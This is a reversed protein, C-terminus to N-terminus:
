HKSKEVLRSLLGKKKTISSPKQVVVPPALMNSGPVEVAGNYPQPLVAYPYPNPSPLPPTLPYNSYTSLPRSSSLQPSLTQPSLSQPSLQGAPSIPQAPYANANWHPQQALPLPSPPAPSAYPPQPYTQLQAIESHWQAFVEQMLPMWEPCGTFNYKVTRDRFAVFYHQKNYPSIALYSVSRPEADTLITDLGAYHGYFKWSYYGDPWLVFWANKKGLAVCCPTDFAKQVKDSLDSPIGAWISGHGPAAAFYSLGEGFTVFCARPASPIRKTWQALDPYNIDFHTQSYFTKEQGDLVKCGIYWIPEPSNVPPGLALCFPQAIRWAPGM